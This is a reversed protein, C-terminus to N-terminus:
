ASKGAGDEELMNQALDDIDEMEENGGNFERMQNEFHNMFDDMDNELEEEIQPAGLIEDDDELDEELISAENKSRAKPSEATKKNLREESPELASELDHIMSEDSFSEEEVSKPEAQDQLDSEQAENEVLQSVVYNLQKKEKVESDNKIKGFVEKGESTKVSGINASQEKSFEDFSKIRSRTNEEPESVIGKKEVQVYPEVSGVVFDEEMFATVIKGHFESDFFPLPAKEGVGAIKLMADRPSLQRYGERVSTLTDFADAFACVKAYPDIDNKTLGYPFGSGDMNEHHQLIMNEVIQPLNIGKEQVTFKAFNPHLKFQAIEVEDMESIDKHLMSLPLDMMGLDHLLGGMRLSETEYLGAMMGFLACYTAMNKAHSYNTLQQAAIKNVETVLNLKSGSEDEIRSVIKGLHEIMQAQEKLNDGEHFFGSMLSRLEKQMELRREERTKGEQSATIRVACYDYYIQLDSKKIYLNYHANNKFKALVEEDLPQNVHNYPIIKQNAPLHVYLAFPLRDGAKLEMVSVRALIDYSLQHNALDTPDSEFFYNILLEDEFPYQYVASVEAKYFIQQDYKLKGAYVAICDSEPFRRKFASVVEMTPHEIKEVDVGAMVIKANMKEIANVEEVSRIREFIYGFGRLRKMFSSLGPPCDEESCILYVRKM